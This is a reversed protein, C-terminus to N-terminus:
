KRRVFRGTAVQNGVELRYLYVGSPWSSADLWASHTGTSQREDVLLALERGLVDYVTLRVHGPAPVRYEITARQRFPNPYNTVKIVGPSVEDSPESSLSTAGYNAIFLNGKEEFLTDDGLNATDSFFGAVLLENSSNLAIARVEQWNPGTMHEVRIFTGAPGYEAVFGDSRNDPASLTFHSTELSTGRFSGALYVHGDTDTAFDNLRIYDGQFLIEESLLSGDLSLWILTLRTSEADDLKRLVGVSNRGKSVYLWHTDYLPYGEPDFVHFWRVSGGSDLSVLVHSDQSLTLSDTGVAAFTAGRKFSADVYVNGGVDVDFAARPIFEWSLDGRGGVVRTWALEGGASYQAVFVNSDYRTRPALMHAGSFITDVFVGAIYVNGGADVDQGQIFGNWGYFFPDYSQSITNSWAVDGDSDYSTLSVGGSSYQNSDFVFPVGTIGIPGQGGATVGTGVAVYRVSDPFADAHVARIWNAEGERDISLLYGGAAEDFGVGYSSLTGHVVVSDVQFAAGTVFVNDRDGVALGRLEQLGGAIQASWVQASAHQREVLAGAVLLIALCASGFSNMRGFKNRKRRGISSDM